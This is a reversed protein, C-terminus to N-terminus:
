WLATKEQVPVVHFVLDTKLKEPPLDPGNLYWEYSAGTQEYGHEAMYAKMDEVALGEEDYPGQYHCVVYTGAPVIGPRIEGKCPLPRLVSIGAEVDLDKLNMNHYATFVGIGDEGLENLYAMISGYIKGLKEPLEEVAVRFHVSLTYQAKMERIECPFMMM